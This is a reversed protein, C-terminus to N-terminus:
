KAESLKYKSLDNKVKRQKKVCNPCDRLLFAQAEFTNVKKSHSFMIKYFPMNKIGTGNKWKSFLKQYFFWNERQTSIIMLYIQETSSFKHFEIKSISIWYFFDHWHESNWTESDGCKSFRLLVNMQVYWFVGNVSMARMLFQVIKNSHRSKQKESLHWGFTILSVRSCANVNPDNHLCFFICIWTSAFLMFGIICDHEICKKSSSFNGNWASNRRLRSNKSVKVNTKVVKSSTLCDYFYNVFLLRNWVFFFRISFCASM